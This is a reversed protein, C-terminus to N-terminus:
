CRVDPRQLRLAGHVVRAAALQAPSTTSRRARRQAFIYANVARASRIANRSCSASPTPWRDADVAAVAPQSTSIACDIVGDSDLANVSYKRGKRRDKTLVSMEDGFVLLADARVPDVQETGGGCSALLVLALAAGLGELARRAWNGMSKM